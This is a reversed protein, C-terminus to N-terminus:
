HVSMECVFSKMKNNCYDKRVTRKNFHKLGERDFYPCRPGVLLDNDEWQVEFGFPNESKVWFQDFTQILPLM